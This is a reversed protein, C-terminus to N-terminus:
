ASQLSLEKFIQPNLLCHYTEDPTLHDFQLGILVKTCTYMEEQDFLIFQNPKIVLLLRQGATLGQYPVFHVQDVLHQDLSTVDLTEQVNKLQEIESDTFMQEIVTQDCIVVPKKSMPDILHNATDLYSSTVVQKHNMTIMVKFQQDQRYNTLSQKDMTSRTFLWVIPFGLIVFLWSVPDGYGSNWTILNGNSLYVSRSFMFYIGTLGGGIGFSVFYFTFWIHMFRRINKWGFGVWIILMSYIVKGIPHVFVSDPFYISFPVIASAVVAAMLMAVPRINTKTLRATLRLIMFDLLLNLLWVADLYITM